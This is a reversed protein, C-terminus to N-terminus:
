RQPATKDPQSSKKRKLWGGVGLALASGFITTPEPVKHEGTMNFTWGTIDDAILTSAVTATLEADFTDSHDSGPHNLSQMTSTNVTNGTADDADLIFNFTFINGFSNDDEHPATIHQLTGNLSLDDDIFGANQTINFTAQWFDGKVGFTRTSSSDFDGGTISMTVFTSTESFTLFAPPTLTGSPNVSGQFNLNVNVNVLNLAIASAPKSSLIVGGVLSLYIAPKLWALSNIKSKLLTM